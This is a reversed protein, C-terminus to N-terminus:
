GQSAEEIQTRMAQILGALAEPHHERLYRFTFSATVDEKQGYLARLREQTEYVKLMTELNKRVEAMAWLARADDNKEQARKLIDESTKTLTVLREYADYRAVPQSPADPNAPPASAAAQAAQRAMMHKVHRSIASQTTGHDKAVRAQATGASLAAEIKELEPHHCISCLAM